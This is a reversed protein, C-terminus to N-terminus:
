PADAELAHGLAVPRRDPTSSSAERDGETLPGRPSATRIRTTAVAASAPVGYRGGPAHEVTIMLVEKGPNETLDKSMLSSVKPEQAMLTGAILSLGVSVFLTLVLYQVRTFWFQTPHKM